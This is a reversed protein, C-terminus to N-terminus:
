HRATDTERGAPVKLVKIKNLRQYIFKAEKQRCQWLVLCHSAQVPLLKNKILCVRKFNNSKSQKTNLWLREFPYFTELVLFRGWSCYSTKSVHIYPQTHLNHFAKCVFLDFTSIPIYIADLLLQFLHSSKRIMIIKLLVKKTFHTDNSGLFKLLFVLTKQQLRM